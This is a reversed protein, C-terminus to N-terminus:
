MGTTEGEVRQELCLLLKLLDPWIHDGHGHGLPTRMGSEGCLAERQRPAGRLKSLGALGTVLVGDEEQGIEAAMPKPSQPDTCDATGRM